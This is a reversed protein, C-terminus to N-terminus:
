PTDPPEPWGLRARAEHMSGWKPLPGFGDLIAKAMENAMAIHRPNQDDFREESPQILTGGGPVLKVAAGPPPVFRRSLEPSFYTTWGALLLTKPLTELVPATFDPKIVGYDINWAEAMVILASAM